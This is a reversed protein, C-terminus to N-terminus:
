LLVSKCLQQLFNDFSWNALFGTKIAHHSCTLHMQATKDLDERNAMRVLM